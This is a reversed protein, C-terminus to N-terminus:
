PFPFGVMYIFGSVCLFLSGVQRLFFTGSNPACSSKFKYLDSGAHNTAITIFAHVNTLVDALALNKVANVFRNNTPALYAPLPPISPQFLSCAAATKKNKM